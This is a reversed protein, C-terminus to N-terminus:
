YHRCYFWLGFNYMMRKSNIVLHVFIIILLISMLFLSLRDEPDKFKRIMDYLLLSVIVVETLIILLEKWFANM